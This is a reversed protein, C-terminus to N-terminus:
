ICPLRQSYVFCLPAIYDAQGLEDAPSSLMSEGDMVATSDCVSDFLRYKASSFQSSARRGGVSRQSLCITSLINGLEIRIEDLPM